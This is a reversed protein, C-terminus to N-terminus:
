CSMRQHYLAKYTDQKESAFDRIAQELESDKIDIHKKQTCSIKNNFCLNYALQHAITALCNAYDAIKNSVSISIGINLAEAGKQIIKTIESTTLLPVEVEAVRNNLETDHQVVEYGYDAAGLVVIKSKEHDRAKDMFLKMMQSIKSKEEDLVKHFDEIVWIADAAGVFECLREEKYIDWVKEIESSLYDHIESSSFINWLISTAKVIGNRFSRFGIELLESYPVIRKKCFAYYLMYNRLCQDSITAVKDLKIEVFEDECLRYIMKLFLEQNMNLKDLLSELPKIDSLNITHLLSIVSATLRLDRDTTIASSVLFKTYYITRKERKVM